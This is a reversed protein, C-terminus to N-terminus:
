RRRLFSTINEYHNTHVHTDTFTHIHRHAFYRLFSGDM